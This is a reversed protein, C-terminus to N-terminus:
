IIQQEDCESGEPLRKAYLEGKIEKYEYLDDQTPGPCRCDVYHVECEPCVPEGCWKCPSCDWAMVVKIWTNNM